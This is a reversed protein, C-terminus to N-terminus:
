DCSQSSTFPRMVLQPNLDAIESYPLGSPTKFYFRVDGPVGAAQAFGISDPLTPNAYITATHM